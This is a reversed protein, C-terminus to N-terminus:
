TDPLYYPQREAPLKRGLINDAIKEAMMITPANLNGTVISPMISADVVRLGEVGHVRGGVDTVAGSDHGMRCTCCPHYNTGAATRLWALLEADSQVPSGPTVEIGRHEDWAQQRVIERIIRVSEIALEQDGATELYNFVFRPAAMPDASELWVRGTSTPRMLSFYYQFGRDIKVGGHQIEGLMPVFEIQMTPM